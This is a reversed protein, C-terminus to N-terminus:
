SMFYVKNLLTVLKEPSSPVGFHVFGQFPLVPMCVFNSVYCLFPGIYLHLHTCSHCFSSWISLKGLKLPFIAEHNPISSLALRSRYSEWSWISITGHNFQSHFIPLSYQKWETKEWRQLFISFKRFRTQLENPLGRKRFRGELVHKRFDWFATKLNNWNEESTNGPFKLFESHRSSLNFISISFQSHFRFHFSTKSFPVM